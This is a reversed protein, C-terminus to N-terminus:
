QLEENSSKLEENASELEEITSQLYDKTVFLERELESNRDGDPASSAAGARALLPPTPRAREGDAGDRFLILLCRRRSEPDLMPIVEILVPHLAGDRTMQTSVTASANSQLAEDVVRRLDPQLEPRAQRLINFSPTGPMPELFMGTRGRFHIIELDENVVVGPPAYLELIKKDAISAISQPRHLGLTTNASPAPETPNRLSLELGTVGGHARKSYIKNKRDILMFREPSEGVTESTGLMLFGRPALSYELVRLVKKQTPPQMYILLNRCSVLDLRSFPADKTVNQLSFVLLDRVRRSVQYTGEHKSFFRRLREPSVDLAISEAYSGRRALTIAREDIDTCFIQIRFDNAREDLFELLSIAISYGEEGTSCGPVWVRIPAGSEKGELLAPFVENKLADFAPPDRFFSTVGILMDGFLTRLEDPNSQAFRVYDDLTDLKQLAMRREVRREITTLKYYSLDIGSVGRMLVMLKNIGDQPLTSAGRNRLLFPHRGIEMLATGIDAAPLVVDVLGTAIANRPMADYKASTPEQAFTIGGAEKIARLGASGDSGTGSLIVGIARSGQDEALSRMFYDISLRPGVGPTMLHLVGQLIALDTNPPIVYVHNREVKMGDAASKVEIPTQRSLLSPLQSEHHPSLHQVVVFAMRDISINHVLNSLADLGGASAGVAVICFDESDESEAM